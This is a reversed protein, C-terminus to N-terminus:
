KAVSRQDLLIFGKKKTRNTLPLLQDSLVDDLYPAIDRLLRHPVEFTFYQETDHYEAHRDASVKSQRPISIHLKRDVGLKLTMPNTCEAKFTELGHFYLGNYRLIDATNSAGAPGEPHLYSQYDGTSLVISPYQWRQGKPIARTYAIQEKSSGEPSKQPLGFEVGVDRPNTTAYWVPLDPKEIDLQADLIYNLYCRSRAGETRIQFGVMMVDLPLGTDLYFETAFYGALEAFEPRYVSFTLDYVKQPGAVDVVAARHPYNTIITSALPRDKLFEFPETLDGKDTQRKEYDEFTGYVSKIKERLEEAHSSQAFAPQGISTVGFAAVFIAVLSFLKSIPKQIM